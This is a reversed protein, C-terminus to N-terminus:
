MESDPKCLLDFTICFEDNIQDACTLASLLSISDHLKTVPSTELGFETIAQKAKM